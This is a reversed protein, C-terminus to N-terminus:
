VKTWDIWPFLNKLKDKLGQRSIPRDLFKEKVLRNIVWKWTQKEKRVRKDEEEGQSEIERIMRQIAEPPLGRRVEDVLEIAKDLTLPFNPISLGDAVSGIEDTADGERANRLLLVRRLLALDNKTLSAKVGKELGIRAERLRQRAGLARQTRIWGDFHRAAWPPLEPHLDWLGDAEIKVLGSRLAKATLSDIDPITKKIEEPQAEYPHGHFDKLAKKYGKIEELLQVQRATLPPFDM